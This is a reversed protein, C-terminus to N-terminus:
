DTFTPNEDLGSCQPLYERCEPYVCEGYTPIVIERKQTIRTVLVACMRVNILNQSVFSGVSSSAIGAVEVSFPAQSTTPVNLLVDKYFSIEGSATILSGISDTLNVSVPLTATFRVRSRTGQTPQVSLGSLVASGNAYLSNFVAPYVPSASFDTLAIQMSENEYTSKCGDIVTKVEVCVKECLGCLPNGSIRGVSINNPM